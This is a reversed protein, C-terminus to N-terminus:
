LLPILLSILEFEERNQYVFLLFISLLVHAWQPYSKLSIPWKGSPTMKGSRGSDKENKKEYKFTTM